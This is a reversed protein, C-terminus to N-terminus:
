GLADTFLIMSATYGHLFSHGGVPGLEGACFMGATAGGAVVADLVAADHDPEGFLGVGRGNCTFLLGGIAPERLKQAQLLLKLDESATQADRLHFQITQGVRVMDGVALHGSRQDVGLVARILFDGRGFRDKYENIVRGLFLGQKLIERDEGELSSVTEHLVDIARRGGLTKIINRQAATVVWPQSVPKCGQSVLTDVTIDGRISVGVAGVRMVDENLILVNSGPTPSVSAIGGIIPIDRDPLATELAHSMADIVSAAPVSFPDAFFFVARLDDRAGLADALRHLGVADGEEAHPLDQYRFTHISTGPLSAAFLSIAPQNEVEVHTGAVAIASVGILTGPNIQTRILAAMEEMDKVHSGSVFMVALDIDELGTAAIEECVAEAAMIPDVHQSIASAAQHTTASSLHEM